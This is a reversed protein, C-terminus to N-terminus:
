LFKTLAGVADNVRGTKRLKDSAARDNKGQPAQRGGSKAPPKPLDKVKKDLLPKKDRLKSLLMADRLELLRRHDTVNSIEAQSYGRKLM